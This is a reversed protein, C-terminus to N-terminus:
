NQADLFCKILLEHKWSKQVIRCAHESSFFESLVPKPIYHKNRSKLTQLQGELIWRHITQTSYGSFESVDKVSMLDMYGDLNEMIYEKFANPYANCIDLLIERQAARYTRPGHNRGRSRYKYWDEDAKYYDPNIERNILYHIIEETKITYRRTKKGTDKCPVKGSQLLYLATAKSIHAIRYFQDKTVEKPYDRRISEYYQLKYKM